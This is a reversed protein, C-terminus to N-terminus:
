GGWYICLGFSRKVGVLFPAREELRAEVRGMEEEAIWGTEGKSSHAETLSIPTLDVHAM